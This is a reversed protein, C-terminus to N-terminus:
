PSVWGDHVLEVIEFIDQDNADNGHRVRLTVKHNVYPPDTIIFVGYNLLTRLKQDMEKTKEENLPVYAMLFQDPFEGSVAYGSYDVDGYKQDFSPKKTLHCRVLLEERPKTAAIEPIPMESFGTTAEWDLVIRDDENVFYSMFPEGNVRTGSIQLYGRNEKEEEGVIIPHSVERDQWQFKSTPNTLCDAGWDAPDPASDRLKNSTRLVNLFDEGNEEGANVAEIIDEVASLVEISHDNYWGLPGKSLDSGAVVGIKGGLDPTDVLDDSGNDLVSMGVIVAVITTTLGAIVFWVWSSSRKKSGWVDDLPKDEDKNKQLRRVQEAVDVHGYDDSQEEQMGVLLDKAKGFLAKADSDKGKVPEFTTNIKRKKRVKRRRQVMGNSVEDAKKEDESDKM